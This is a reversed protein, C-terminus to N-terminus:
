VDGAGVGVEDALHIEDQLPYQGGESQENVASLHHVQKLTKL